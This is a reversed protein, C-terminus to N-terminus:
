YAIKVERVMYTAFIWVFYLGAHHFVAMTSAGCGAESLNTGKEYCCRLGHRRKRADPYYDASEIANKLMNSETRKCCFM